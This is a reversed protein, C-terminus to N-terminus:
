SIESNIVAKVSDTNKIVINGTRKLHKAQRQANAKLEHNKNELSENLTTLAKIKAQLIPIDTYYQGIWHLCVKCHVVHSIKQPLTYNHALVDMSGVTPRQGLKIGTFGKSYKLCPPLNNVYDFPQDPKCCNLDEQALFREIESDSDEHIKISDISSVHPKSRNRLSRSILRGVRKNRFGLMAQNKKSQKRPNKSDSKITPNPFVIPEHVPTKIFESSVNQQGCLLHDPLEGEHPNEDLFDPKGSSFDLPKEIMPKDVVPTEVVIEAVFGNRALFGDWDDGLTKLHHVLLLKILGHHFLSSDLNQKKYRKSMKYLSRLLYFSMNLHFGIFHMLLRVHYLFVLGYHGECTIFQKLVALLGHWRVKLLSVLIGKDCCDIKRSTVFLSWPVEDLKLNKFWKQGTLPLGTAESLFDETIELQIDGVKARYGDFTLTFEKAVQLNYGQFKKIFMDWGQSKLDESADDYLFLTQSGNPEVRIVPAM